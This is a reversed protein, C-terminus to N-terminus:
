ESLEPNDHGEIRVISFRFGTHPDDTKLIM